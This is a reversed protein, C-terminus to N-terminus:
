KKEDNIRSMSVLFPSITRMERPTMWTMMWDLTPPIPAHAEHVPFFNSIPYYFSWRRKVINQYIILQEKYKTMDM